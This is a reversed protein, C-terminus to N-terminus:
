PSSPRSASARRTTAGSAARRKSASGRSLVQSRASAHAASAHAIRASGCAAALVDDLHEESYWRNYEDEKGEAPHTLVVLLATAM